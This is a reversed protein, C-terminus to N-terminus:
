PRARIFRTALPESLLRPGLDNGIVGRIYLEGADVQLGDGKNGPLWRHRISGGWVSIRAPTTSGAAARPLWIAYGPNDWIPGMLLNSFLFGVREETAKAILCYRVTDCNVNSAMGSVGGDVVMPSPEFSLGAYRGFILTDNVQLSDVKRAIIGTANALSWWHLPQLPPLGWSAFPEINSSNIRVVDWANDVTVANKIGGLYDHELTVRGVLIDVDQYGNAFTCRRIKSPVLVRITPPYFRPGTNGVNPDNVKVQDPYAFILDEITSGAAAVQIFPQGTAGSKARVLLTPGQRTDIPSVMPDYPGRGEGVLAIARPGSFTLTGDFYFRGDPVTVVGGAAAADIARQFAATSDLEPHEPRAGQCVVSTPPCTQGQVPLLYHGATALLAATLIVTRRM